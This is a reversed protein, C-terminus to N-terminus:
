ALKAIRSLNYTIIGFGVWARNGATGKYLSRGLGYKRKLVSITGEIGARFRQLRKYWREKVLVQCKGRMRLAVRKIGLETLANQNDKSGFGADTAVAWPKKSTAQIHANVAPLLHETDSPNGNLLAYSTIIREETESLFLKRGFEVPKKLRGKVIPRAEPDFISVVRDKLRPNGSMVEKTQHIIRNLLEVQKGLRTGLYEHSDELGKLVQKASTIVANAIGILESQIKQRKDKKGKGKTNNAKFAKKKTSRTRDRFSDAAQSGKEKIKKVTNTIARIGDALLGTDTPYHIDAEVTTSDVRLKKGRIVKKELAKQVLLENIKKVVKEGYRQTAKILTTSDPMPDSLKLKCFTRWKISDSVEKVLTEYGLSYRHKLYMMRLYTEVPVTPRGTTTRFHELFPEMFREDNLFEDIKKLEENLEFLEKPLSSEFIDMQNDNDNHLKLM